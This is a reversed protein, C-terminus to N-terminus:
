GMHCPLHVEDSLGIGRHDGANITASIRYDQGARDPNCLAEGRVFGYGDHLRMSTRDVTEYFFGLHEEQL